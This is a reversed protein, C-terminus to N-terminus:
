KKQMHARLSVDATSMPAGSGINAKINLPQGKFM